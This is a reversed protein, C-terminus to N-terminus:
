KYAVRSGMNTSEVIGLIPLKSCQSWPEHDENKAVTAKLQREEAEVCKSVTWLMMWLKQSIVKQGMSDFQMATLTNFWNISSAQSPTSALM